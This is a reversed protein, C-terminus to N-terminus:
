FRKTFDLGFRDPPAKFLFNAGPAPGPSFEANYEEDFANKAWLMLSWNDEAELGIRANFIDIPSRKSINAPDWWTDGIREYDIRISRFLM